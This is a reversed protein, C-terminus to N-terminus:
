VQDVVLGGSIGWNLEFVKCPCMNRRLAYNDSLSWINNFITYCFTDISNLTLEETDLPPPGAKCLACAAQMKLHVTIAPSLEKLSTTKDLKGGREKTSISWASQHFNSYKTTGKRGQPRGRKPQKSAQVKTRAGQKKNERGKKPAKKKIFTPRNWWEEINNSTLFPLWNHTNYRLCWPPGIQEGVKGEGCM